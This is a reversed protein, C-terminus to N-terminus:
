AALLRDLAIDAGGFLRALVIVRRLGRGVPLEETVGIGGHLQVADEALRQAADAVYAKAALVGREFGPDDRDAVAAKILLSRAQELVVFMRAIRHQVAQFSAIPAGFQVRQQVYGTTHGLLMDMAGVMEAVYALQGVAVSRALEGPPLGIVEGECGALEIMAAMSGDALRVPTIALNDADRAVVYLDDGTMVALADADAGWRVFPCHGVLRGDHLAVGDGFAPVVLAEGELVPRVWRAVQESTGHRAILDAAILISEALPTIALARGLEEAVIVADQARADMGGGSGPLLFAFLGLEALSSWEDRPMPGRGLDQAACRDGLFRGIMDRLLQQEESPQLNM